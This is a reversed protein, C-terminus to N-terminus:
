NLLLFDIIYKIKIGDQSTIFNRDLSLIVKEYNNDIQKLPSIERELTNKDILSETIQYYIKEKPNEAIFDIEMDKYKGIYVKYGRRILEIYIINELIHGRDTDRYGLLMNRLGIDVIYNKGLTKLLSKGRIDYRKIDYFIFADQLALIYNEITRNPYKGSSEIIKQSVLFNSISNVSNISGINQALFEVLRKLLAHELIKNRQLVDKVIVTNYIGELVG